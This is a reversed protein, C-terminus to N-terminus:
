VCVLVKMLSSASLEAVVTTRTASGNLPTPHACGKKIYAHLPLYTLDKKCTARRGTRWNKLLGSANKVSDNLQNEASDRDQSDFITRIDDAM